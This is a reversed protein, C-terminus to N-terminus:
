TFLIGTIKHVYNVSDDCFAKFFSTKNKNSWEFVSLVMIFM